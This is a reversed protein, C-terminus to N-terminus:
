HMEKSKPRALELIAGFTEEYQAINNKLTALIAKAHSPSTVLCAVKHSQAFQEEQGEAPGSVQRCDFVFERGSHRIQMINFYTALPVPPPTPDAM